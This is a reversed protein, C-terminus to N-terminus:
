RSQRNVYTSFKRNTSNNNSKVDIKFLEKELMKEATKEAVLAKETQGDGTYFDALVSYIIFDVFEGPVDTSTETYSKVQKKYTVFVRTDNAHLPNLIHAGHEDVYFDYEVASNDAFPRTRHIRIFESITELGSDKDNSSYGAVAQDYGVVQMKKVVPVSNPTNGYNQNWVVDWPNDYELGLDRQTNLTVNGTKTVVGTDLSITWSGGIFRWRKNVPDFDFYHGTRGIPSFLQSRSYVPNGDSDDGLNYYLGNYSLQNYGEVLFSHLIREEGTVLYRPWAESSDYARQVARNLSQEFFFNDSETMSELGAVAQFSKRVDIFSADTPM